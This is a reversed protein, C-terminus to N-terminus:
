PCRDTVEFTRLSVHVYFESHARKLLESEYVSAPKAFATPRELALLPLCEEVQKKTMGVRHRYGIPSSSELAKPLSYRTRKESAGAASADRRVRQNSPPPAIEVVALEKQTTSM